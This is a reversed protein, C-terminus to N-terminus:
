EYLTDTPAGTTVELANSREDYDSACNHLHVWDGPAIPATARGIRVGYKIIADGPSRAALAIKHGLQVPQRATIITGAGSGLLKVAGPGADDLVVAVNDLSTIQFANATM